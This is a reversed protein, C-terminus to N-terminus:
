GEKVLPLWCSKRKRLNIMNLSYSKLNNTVLYKGSKTLFFTVLIGWQQSSDNQISSFTAMRWPKRRGCSGCIQKRSRLRLFWVAKPSKPSRMDPDQVFDAQRREVRQEHIDELPREEALICLRQVNYWFWHGCIDCLGRHAGGGDNRLQLYLVYLSSKLSYGLLLYLLQSIYFELCSM